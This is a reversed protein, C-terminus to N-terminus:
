LRWVSVTGSLETDEATGRLTASAKGSVRYTFTAGVYPGHPCYDTTTEHLVYAVGNYEAIDATGSVHLIQLNGFYEFAPPDITADQSGGFWRGLWNGVWQGLWM